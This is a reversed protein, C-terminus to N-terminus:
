IDGYYLNIKEGNKNYFFPTPKNPYYTARMFDTINFLNDLQKYNYVKRKKINQAKSNLDNELLKLFMNKFMKEMLEITKLYLSYATENKKIKIKHIKIIDGTDVGSDIKHLTVGGNKEGNLISFSLTGVGGYQPLINPHFNYCRRNKLFDKSLIKDYQVSLFIDCEDEFEVIKFGAPLNNLAWLKCKMGINKNTSIYVKKIM